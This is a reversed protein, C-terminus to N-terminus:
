VGSRYLNEAEDAVPERGAAPLSPWARPAGREEPVERDIYPAVTEERLEQWAVMDLSGTRRAIALILTMALAAECAAVAIVFLVLMQGGWDDWYRSWAVLSLAVGQLIMEVCLFMVILNRRVLLGVVGIALVLGGVLLYNHLLAAENLETM